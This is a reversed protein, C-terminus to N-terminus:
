AGLKATAPVAAIRAILVSTGYSKIYPITMGDYPTRHVAGECFDAPLQQRDRGLVVM